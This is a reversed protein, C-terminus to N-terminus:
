PMSGVFPASVAAATGVPAQSGAIGGAAAGTVTGTTGSVQVGMKRVGVVTGQEAKSAQQVASSAYADPSFSPGCAALALAGALGFHRRM